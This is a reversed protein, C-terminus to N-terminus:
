IQITTTTGKGVESQVNISMQHSDLINKTIALGLGNGGLKKSRSNDVRYFPDFLQDISEPPIGIGTDNITIQNKSLIVHISGGEVNYRVANHFLNSFAQRLLTKDGKLSLEGKIKIDLQKSLIDAKLDSLIDEFVARMEITIMDRKTLTKGMALMGEVLDIMRETSNKVEVFVEEYDAMTPNDNMELVEMDARILALPTKLEHSANQAFLQKSEFSRNLKNLMSNFSDILHSIEDHNKSCPLQEDLKSSEIESVSNSLEKIPRVIVGSILYAGISGLVIILGAIWYSYYLFDLQSTNLQQQLNESDTRVNGLMDNPFNSILEEIEENTLAHLDRNLYSVGSFVNIQEHMPTTINQRVNIIILAILAVTLVILCFSFIITMKLQISLKAWM